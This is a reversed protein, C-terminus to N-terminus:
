EAVLSLELTKDARQIKIVSKEGIQLLGILEMADAVKAPQKGNISLIVDGQQIGARQAVSNPVVSGAFIVGQRDQLGIGLMPAVRGRMELRSLTTAKGASQGNGAMICSLGVLSTSKIRINPVPMRFTQECAQELNVGTKECLVRSETSNKKLAEIDHWMVQVTFPMDTVDGGEKGSWCRCNLAGLDANQVDVTFTGGGYDVVDAIVVLPFHLRKGYGLSSARLGDQRTQVKRPTFVAVKQDRRLEVNDVMRGILSLDDPDAFDHVLRFIGDPGKTAKTKPLRSFTFAQGSFDDTPPNTTKEVRFMGDGFESLQLTIRYVARDLKAVSGTATIKTVIALERNYGITAKLGAGLSDLSAVQGNLTLEVKRSVDLKITKDAAGAKYTVTISRTPPEVSNITCEVTVVEASIAHATLVVVLATASLLFCRPIM